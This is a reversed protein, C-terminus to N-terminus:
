RNFLNKKFIPKSEQKKVGSYYIFLKYDIQTLVEYFHKQIQYTYNVWRFFTNSVICEFKTQTLFLYILYFNLHQKIKEQYYQFKNSFCYLNVKTKEKEKVLNIKSTKPFLSLLKKILKKLLIIILIKLQKRNKKKKQVRLYHQIDQYEKQWNKFYDNKNINMQRRKSRIKYKKIYKRAQYKFVKTDKM